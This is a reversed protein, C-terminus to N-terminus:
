NREVESSAIDEGAHLTIKVNTPRLDGEAEEERLEFVRGLAHWDCNSQRARYLVKYKGHGLQEATFSSNARVQFSRAFTPNGVDVLKVLVDEDVHMNDVTFTSRGSVNMAPQGPLYGSYSEKPFPDGESAACANSKEKGPSRDAKADPKDSAPAPEPPTTEVRAEDAAVPADREDKAELSPPLAPVVAPATDATALTVEEELESRAPEAPGPVVVPSEYAPANGTALASLAPTANSAVAPAGQRVHAAWQAEMADEKEQAKALIGGVLASIVFVGGFALLLAGRTGLRTRLLIPVVFALRPSDEEPEAISPEDEGDDPADLSADYEARRLPDMLVDYSQNLLTMVRAAESDGPNKDPHYKQSLAKYAARVVEPPADRSVALREYHTDTADMNQMVPLFRALEISGGVGVISWGSARRSARDSATVLTRKPVSHRGPSSDFIRECVAGNRTIESVSKEVVTM